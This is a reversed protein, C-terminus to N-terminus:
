VESLKRDIYKKCDSEDISANENLWISFDEYQAAIIWARCISKGENDRYSKVPLPESIIGKGFSSTVSCNKNAVIVEKNENVVLLGIDVSKPLKFDALTSTIEITINFDFKYDTIIVPDSPKIKMVRVLLKFVIFIIILGGVMLGTILLASEWQTQDAFSM